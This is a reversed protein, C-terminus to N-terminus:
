PVPRAYWGVWTWSGPGQFTGQVSGLSMRFATGPSLWSCHQTHGRLYILHSCLCHHTSPLLKRYDWATGVQCHFAMEVLRCCLWTILINTCVHGERNRGSQDFSFYHCPPDLSEWTLCPSAPPSFKWKWFMEGSLSAWELSLSRRKTKMLFGEPFKSLVFVRSVQNSPKFFVSFM